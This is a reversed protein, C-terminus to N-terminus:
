RCAEHSTRIGPNLVAKFSEVQDRSMDKDLVFLAFVEAFAEDINSAGYDSVPMVSQFSDAKWSLRPLIRSFSEFRKAFEGLLHPVERFFQDRDTLHPLDLVEGLAMMAKNFPVREREVEQPLPPKSARIYPLIPIDPLEAGLQRSVTDWPRSDEKFRALSALVQRVFIALEKRKREMDRSSARGSPDEEVSPADVVQEFKMRALNSMQRFWYRHGLEHAMTHVISPSPRAYIRVTDQEKSFDGHARGFPTVQGCDECQIFVTGYWASGLGKKKLREYCENLYRVYLKTQDSSVTADDVWVKMGHLDFKQTGFDEQSEYVSFAEKVEKLFADVDWGKWSKLLGLASRSARQLFKDRVSSSQGLNGSQFTAREQPSASALMQRVLRRLSEEELSFGIRFLGALTGWKKSIFRSLVLALLSYVRDEETKASIGQLLVEGLKQLRDIGQHLPDLAAGLIRDAFNKSTPSYIRIAKGLSKLAGVMSEKADLVAISVVPSVPARLADWFLQVQEEWFRDFESAQRHRAVIRATFM